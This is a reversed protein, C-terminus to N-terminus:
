GVENTEQNKHVVHYNLYKIWTYICKWYHKETIM